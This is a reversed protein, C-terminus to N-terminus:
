MIRKIKELLIKDSIRNQELERRRLKFYQRLIDIKLAFDISNCSNICFPKFSKLGIPVRAFALGPNRSRFWNVYSAHQVRCLGLATLKLFDILYKDHRAFLVNQVSRSREACARSASHLIWKWELFPNKAGVFITPAWFSLLQLFEFTRLNVANPMPGPLCQCPQCADPSPHPQKVQWDPWQSKQATTAM